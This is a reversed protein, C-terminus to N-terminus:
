REIYLLENHKKLPFRATLSNFIPDNKDGLIWGFTLEERLMLVKEGYEKFPTGGLALVTEKDAFYPYTPDVVKDALFGLKKAMDIVIEITEKNAEVCITTNFYDAGQDLGYKIYDKVDPHNYYKILQCGAHHAHAMEKGSTMSHLDSRSFIYCVMDRIPQEPIKSKTMFRKVM